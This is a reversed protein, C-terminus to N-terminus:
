VNSFRETLAIFKELEKEALILEQEAEEIEIKKRDVKNKLLQLRLSDAKCIYDIIKVGRYSETLDLKDRASISKTDWFAKCNKCDFSIILEGNITTQLQFLEWKPADCKCKGTRVAKNGFSSYGRAM